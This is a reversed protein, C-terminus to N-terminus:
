ARVQAGGSCECVGAPGLGRWGAMGLFAAWGRVEPCPQPAPKTQVGTTGPQVYPTNTVVSGNFTTFNLGPQWSNYVCGFSVFPDVTVNPGVLVTFSSTSLAPVTANRSTDALTLTYVTVNGLTTANTVVWGAPATPPSVVSGLSGGM